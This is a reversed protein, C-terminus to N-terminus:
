DTRGARLPGHLPTTTTPEDCPDSEAGLSLDRVTLGALASARAADVKDLMASVPAARDGIRVAGTADEGARRITDLIGGLLTTEPAQAPLFVPPQDATRVLINGKELLSLVSDVTDQPLQLRNALSEATVAQDLGYFASASSTKPSVSARSSFPHDSRSLVLMSM